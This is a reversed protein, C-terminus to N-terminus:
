GLSTREGAIAHNAAPKSNEPESRKETPIKLRKVKAYFATRSIGLAKATSTVNGQNARLMREIHHKEVETLTRQAYQVEFDHTANEHDPLRLDAADITDRGALLTTRELVNRLERVNGPWPYSTLALIASNTLSVNKYRYRTAIRSLIDQALQVVDDPRERLPPITLPIMNIRYYLDSRFQGEAVAKALDRNTAAIIRVDVRQDRVSGIRRFRQDEIIKLLKPQTQPSMDGIEDLFLVGKHAVEVLGQKSAVAGTFAGREHGFLETDLLEPSFGACNTDVFPENRRQGNQHLWRALVGKGTGTEGLILVPTEAEAVKHAEDALSRIVPSAGLFPDYKGRRRGATARRRYSQNDLARQLVLLLSEFDVPKLLFQDAGLKVASVALDITGHGTLVVIPMSPAQQRFEPLLDLATGEPLLYDLLVIDPHFSAFKERASTLSGAEEVIFQNVKLFGALGARLLEEDEVILARVKTM